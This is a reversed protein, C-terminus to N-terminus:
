RQYGLRNNRIGTDQYGNGISAGALGGPNTRIFFAVSNDGGLLVTSGTEESQGSVKNGTFILETTGATDIAGQFFSENM